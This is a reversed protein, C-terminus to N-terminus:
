DFCNLTSYNQFSNEADALYNRRVGPLYSTTGDVPNNSM